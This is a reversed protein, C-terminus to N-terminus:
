NIQIDVVEEGDMQSLILNLHEDFEVYDYVTDRVCDAFEDFDTDASVYVMLTEENIFTTEVINEWLSRIESAFRERLHM